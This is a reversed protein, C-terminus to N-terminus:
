PLAVFSTSNYDRSINVTNEKFFLSLELPLSRESSVSLAQSINAKELKLKIKKMENTVKNNQMSLQKPNFHSVLKFYGKKDLSRKICCNKKMREDLIDKIFRDELATARYAELQNALLSNQKAFDDNMALEAVLRKPYALKAQDIIKDTIQVVGGRNEFSKIKPVDPLETFIQVMLHIIQRAKEVEVLGKSSLYLTGDEFIYIKKSLTNICHVQKTAPLELRATEIDTEFEWLPSHMNSKYWLKFLDRFYSSAVFLESFFVKLESFFSEDKAKFCNPLIEEFYEVDYEKAKVRFRQLIEYSEEVTYRSSLDEGFVKKYESIPIKDDILADLYINEQIVLASAEERQQRWQNDFAITDENTDSLRRYIVRPSFLKGAESLIKDTLYVIPGRNRLSLLKIPDLKGTLAHLMEHLYIQELQSFEFSNTNSMYSLKTIEEDSAIYIIKSKFDARILASKKVLFVWRNEPGLERAAYYSNFIRRFTPSDEYLSKYFQPINFASVETDQMIFFCQQFHVDFNYKAFDSAHELSALTEEVTIRKRLDKQSLSLESRGLDNGGGGKLGLGQYYYGSTEDKFILHKSFDIDGTEWNIERFSMGQSKVPVVRNKNAVYVLPYEQWTLGQVGNRVQETIFQYRPPISEYNNILFPDNHLSIHDDIPFDTSYLDFKEFTSHITELTMRERISLGSMLANNKLNLPKKEAGSLLDFADLSLFFVGCIVETPSKDRIGEEITYLSGIIPITGIWAKLGRVWARHLETETLYNLAIRKVEQEVAFQTIEKHQRELNHVAQNQVWPDQYLESNFADEAEELEIRPFIKKRKYYISRGVIGDWAAVRMFQELPTGFYTYSLNMNDAEIVYYRKTNIEDISMGMDKLVKIAVRERDFYPPSSIVNKIKTELYEFLKKLKKKWDHTVFIVNNSESLHLAMLLRPQIPYNKNAEWQAEIQRFLDLYQGESVYVPPEAAFRHRYIRILCSHLSHLLSGIAYHTSEGIRYFKEELLFQRELFSLKKYEPFIELETRNILDLFYKGQANKFTLGDFFITQSDNAVIEASFLQDILKEEYVIKPLEQFYAEELNFFSFVKQQFLEKNKILAWLLAAERLFRFNPFKEREFVVQFFDYPFSKRYHAMVAKLVQLPNKLKDRVHDWDVWSTLCAQLQYFCAEEIFSAVIKEKLFFRMGLVKIEDYSQFPYAILKKNVELTVFIQRQQSAFLKSFALKMAENSTMDLFKLLRKKNNRLKIYSQQATLNYREMFLDTMIIDLKIAVTFNFWDEHLFFDVTPNKISKEM